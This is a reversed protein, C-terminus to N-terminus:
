EQRTGSTSTASRRRGAVSPLVPTVGICNMARTGSSTVAISTLAAADDAAAAAKSTSGTLPPLLPPPPPPPPPAGPPPTNLTDVYVCTIPAILHDELWLKGCEERQV